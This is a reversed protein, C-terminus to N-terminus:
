ESLSLHHRDLCHFYFINEKMYICCVRQLEDIGSKDRSATYMATYVPTRLVIYDLHPLLWTASTEM